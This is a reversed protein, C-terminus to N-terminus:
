PVEIKLKELLVIQDIDLSGIRHSGIKMWQRWLGLEMSWNGGILNIRNRFGVFRHRGNSWKYIEKPWFQFISGIYGIGNVINNELGYMFFIGRIRYTTKVVSNLFRIYYSSASCFIQKLFQEDLEGDVDLFWLELLQEWGYMLNKRRSHLWHIDIGLFITLMRDGSWDPSIYLM